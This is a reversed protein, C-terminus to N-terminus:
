NCSALNVLGNVMHQPGNANKFLKIKGCAQLVELIPSRRILPTGAVTLRSPEAWFKGQEM